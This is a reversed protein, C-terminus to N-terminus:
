GSFLDSIMTVTEATLAEPRDLDPNRVDPRAAELGLGM